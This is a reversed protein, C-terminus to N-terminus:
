KDTESDDPHDSTPSATSAVESVAKALRAALEAVKEKNSWWGSKTAQLEYAMRRMLEANAKDPGALTSVVASDSTEKMVREFSARIRAVIEANLTQQHREAERELARRMSERIRIKSLQVTDTLNRAM